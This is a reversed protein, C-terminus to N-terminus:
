DIVESLAAAGIILVAGAWGVISLPEGMILTSVLVSVAPEVYGLVAATQASLGSLGDFYLCYAIGTHLVGLLVVLGISLADPALTQGMNNVAVFPLDHAIAMGKGFTACVILGGILGPGSTAAIGGLEAASVGPIMVSMLMLVALFLSAARKMKKMKKM